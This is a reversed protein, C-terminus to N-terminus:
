LIAAAAIDCYYKLNASPQLRAFSAIAMRSILQNNMKLGNLSRLLHQVHGLWWRALTHGHLDIGVKACAKPGVRRVPGTSRCRKLEAKIRSVDVRPASKESLQVTRLLEDRDTLNAGKVALAHDLRVVEAFCREMEASASRIAEYAQTLFPLPPALSQMFEILVDQTFVDNEWSYGRTYIPLACTQVGTM